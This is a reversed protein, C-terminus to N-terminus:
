QDQPDELGAYGAVHVSWFLILFLFKPPRVKTAANAEDADAQLTELAQLRHRPISRLITRAAM